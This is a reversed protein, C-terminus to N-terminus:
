CCRKFPDVYVDDVRWAGSTDLPRLRLAVNTTGSPSFLALLNAYYYVVPSAQWASGASLTAVQLVGPTGDLQTYLVDLALRSAGAGTNRLFLRLTPSGATVCVLPSTASSAAPLSLSAAGAGAVNFTESGAVVRAGGGLTWAAAGAEFGGGPVGWYLDPDGFAAFVASTKPSCDLAPSAGASKAAAVGPACLAAGVMMVLLRRMMM